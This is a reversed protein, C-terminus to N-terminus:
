KASTSINNLQVNKLGNERLVVIAPTDPNKNVVNSIVSDTVFGPIFV